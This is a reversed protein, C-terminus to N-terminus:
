TFLKPQFPISTLSNSDTRPLYWRRSPCRGQQKQQAVMQKVYLIAGIMVNQQESPIRQYLLESYGALNTHGNKYEQGTISQSGFVATHGQLDPTEIGGAKGFQHHSVPKDPQQKNRDTNQEEPSSWFSNIMVMDYPPKESIKETQGGTEAKVTEIRSPPEHRANQYKVQHKGHQELTAPLM